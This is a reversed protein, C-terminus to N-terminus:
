RCEEPHEDCYPEDSPLRGRNDAVVKYVYEQLSGIGSLGYFSLPLRVGLAVALSVNIAGAGRWRRRPRGSIEGPEIAWAAKKCDEVSLGASAPVGSKQYPVATVRRDRDLAKVWRM